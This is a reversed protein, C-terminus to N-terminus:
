MAIVKQDETLYEFEFNTVHIGEPNFTVGYRTM